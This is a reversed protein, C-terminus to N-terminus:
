SAAPEASRATTRLGHISWLGVILILVGYTLGLFNGFLLFALPWSIVVARALLKGSLRGRRLEILALTVGYIIALVSSGAVGFMVRRVGSRGITPLGIAAAARWQRGRAALWIGGALFVLVAAFFWVMITAGDRTDATAGLYVTPIYSCLLVLLVGAVVALTSM